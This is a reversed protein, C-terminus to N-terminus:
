NARMLKHKAGNTCRSNFKLVEIKACEFVDKAVLESHCRVITIKLSKKSYVIYKLCECHVCVLKLHHLVMM